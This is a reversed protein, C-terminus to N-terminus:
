KGQAAFYDRRLQMAKVVYDIGTVVTVVVVAAMVLYGPWLAWSGLQGLPLIMLVLAVTQLVTKLKGGKSAAMVGYKIIFLRMVTIGWERVLIVITVWWWLEGLMSLVVFAAGTLLKDAIPDAIKGFSTILNNKRALYGDLWDTIMALVFVAAAWWRLSLNAEGHPGGAWLAWVFLPVMVIRLATLANPINWNSATATQDAM